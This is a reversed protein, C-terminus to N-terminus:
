EQEQYLSSAEFHEKCLDPCLITLDYVLGLPEMNNQSTSHMSYGHGNSCVSVLFNVPPSTAAQVTTQFRAVM